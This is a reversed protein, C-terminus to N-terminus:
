NRASLVAWFNIKMKSLIESKRRDYYQRCLIFSPWIYERAIMIKNRIRHYNTAQIKYEDVGKDLIDIRTGLHISSQGRTELSHWSTESLSYYKLLYYYRQEKNNVLGFITASNTIFASNEETYSIECGNRWRYPASMVNIKTLTNRIHEVLCM